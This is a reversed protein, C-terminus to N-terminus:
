ILVCGPLGNNGHYGGGGFGEGFYENGGTPKEGNVLLGGGGGGYGGNYHTGAKGPTLVFRTINLTGVDLGSGKGGTNSSYDGGDSGDSGGDQGHQSYGAGGGSYGDGGNYGDDDQGPAAILLVKGDKEVSSTEKSGM